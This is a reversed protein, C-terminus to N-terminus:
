QIWIRRFYEDMDQKTEISIIENEIENIIIKNGFKIDEEKRVMIVASSVVEEGKHNRILRNKYDIRARIVTPVSSIIEGFSNKTERLITIEDILYEQM